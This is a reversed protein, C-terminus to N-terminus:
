GAPPLLALEGWFRHLSRMQELFQEFHLPKTLYCNAHNQYAEVVDDRASSTTLIIVPITSLKPDSKIERLVERGSKRPLNLDLLILSPPDEDSRLMQMAAAGDRASLVEVTPALELFAERTLEIDEASDEILLIKVQGM